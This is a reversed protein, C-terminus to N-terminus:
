EEGGVNGRDTRGKNTIQIYGRRWEVRGKDGRGASDRGRVGELRAESSSIDRDPSRSAEVVTRVIMHNRM